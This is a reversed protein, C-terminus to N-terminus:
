ANAPTATTERLKKSRLEYQQREMDAAWLAAGITNTFGFIFGVFPLLELGQAMVGFTTYESKHKALWEEREQLTMEKMDFYRKHVYPGRASGNIYCFTLPGLVPVFNLPLTMMWLGMRQGYHTSAQQAKEVARQHLQQPSDKRAASASVPASVRVMGDDAVTAYPGVQVGNKALVSQFLNKSKEKKFVEGMIISVLLSTEGMTLFMTSWTSVGIGLIKLNAIRPLAHDIVSSVIRNQYKFTLAILPTITSVAVGLAWCLSRVFQPGLQSINRSLYVIGIVPYAPAPLVM